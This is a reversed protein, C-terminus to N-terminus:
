VGLAQNFRHEVEFLRGTWIELVERWLPSGRNEDYMRSAYVLGARVAIGEDNLNLRELDTMADRRNWQERTRRNGNRTGCGGDSASPRPRPAHVRAPSGLAGQGRGRGCARGGRPHAPRVAPRRGRDPPRRREGAAR